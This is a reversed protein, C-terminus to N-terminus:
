SGKCGTILVDLTDVDTKTMESISDHLKEQAVHLWFSVQDKLGKTFINVLQQRLIRTLSGFKSKFYSEIFQKSTRGEKSKLVQAAYFAKMGHNLMMM